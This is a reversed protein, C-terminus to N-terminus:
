PPLKEPKLQEYIGYGRGEPLNRDFDMYVIGGYTQVVRDQLGAQIGLEEKEVSLILAPMLHQPIEVEYFKMLARLTATIIASSGNTQGFYGDSPHGGLGPRPPCDTTLIM